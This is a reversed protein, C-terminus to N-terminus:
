SDVLAIKDIHLMDTFKAVIRYHKVRSFRQRYWPQSELRDLFLKDGVFSAKLSPKMAYKNLHRIKDRIVPM